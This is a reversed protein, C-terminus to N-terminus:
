SKLFKHFQEYADAKVYLVQAIKDKENFHELLPTQIGIPV